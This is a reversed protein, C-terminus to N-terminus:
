HFDGIFEETLNFQIIPFTKASFQLHKLEEFFLSTDPNSQM